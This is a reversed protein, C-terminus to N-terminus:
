YACTEEIVAPSLTCSILSDCLGCFSHVRFAHTMSPLVNDDSSAIKRHTIASNNIYHHLAYLSIIHLKYLYYLKEEKESSKSRIKIIILVFSCYQFIIYLIYYHVIYLLIINIIICIKCYYIVCCLIYYLYSIYYSIDYLICYSIYYSIYYSM